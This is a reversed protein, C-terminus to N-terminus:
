TVLQWRHRSSRLPRHHTHIPRHDRQDAALPGLAFGQHDTLSRQLRCCGRGSLYMQSSHGGARAKGIDLLEILRDYALQVPTPDLRGALDRRAAIAGLPDLSKDVQVARLGGADQIEGMGGLLHRENALGDGGSIGGPSRGAQLAELVVPRLGQQGLYVLLHRRQRLGRRLHGLRQRIQVLPHGEQLIGGKSGGAPGKATAAHLAGVLQHDLGPEFAGAHMPGPGVDIRQQDQAVSGTVVAPLLRPCVARGPETAM